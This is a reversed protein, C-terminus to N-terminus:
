NEAKEKLGNDAAAGIESANLLLGRLPREPHWFPERHYAATKEYAPRQDRNASECGLRHVHVPM